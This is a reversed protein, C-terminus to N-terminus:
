FSQFILQRGKRRALSAIHFHVIKRANKLDKVCRRSARATWEAALTQLFLQKKGERKSLPHIPPSQNAAGRKKPPPPTLSKLVNTM